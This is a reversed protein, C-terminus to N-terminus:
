WSVAYGEDLISIMIDVFEIEHGDFLRLVEANL